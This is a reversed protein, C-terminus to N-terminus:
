CLVDNTPVFKDMLEQKNNYVQVANYDKQYVVYYLNNMESFVKAPYCQSFLFCFPGVETAQKQFIKPVFTSSLIITWSELALGNWM